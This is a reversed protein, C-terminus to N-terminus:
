IMVEIYIIPYSRRFFLKLSIRKVDFKYVKNIVPKAICCVVLINVFVKLCSTPFGMKILALYNALHLGEPVRLCERQRAELFVSLLIFTSPLSAQKGLAM